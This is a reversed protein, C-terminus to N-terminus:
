RQIGGGDMIVVQGNIPAAEDSALFAVSAAVEEPEILRGLPSDAIVAEFAQEENRGTTEVIRTLTRATMETRVYGPCVANSTVATGAVEAAVARMFGVEAHKSAIYSSTYRSGSVGSTSAVFVLRGRNRERMGSIVARTCLFAGTANVAIHQEWQELTTKHLPASLAIGANNVLVDVPGLRAFVETVSDEVTVDCTEYGVKLGLASQQHALGKLAQEDRGLAIVSDGMRAFREVVAKGIGKGGGTVVVLGAGSRQQAAAM